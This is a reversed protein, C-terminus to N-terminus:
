WSKDPFHNVFCHMHIVSPRTVELMETQQENDPYGSVNYTSTIIISKQIYYM